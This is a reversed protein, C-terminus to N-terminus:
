ASRLSAPLCSHLKNQSLREIPTFTENMQPTTLETYVEESPVGNHGLRNWLWKSMKPLVPWMILALSKLWWYPAESAPIGSEALWKRIPPAADRLCFSRPDLARDQQDLAEVLARAVGDPVGHASAERSLSALTKTVVSNWREYFENTSAFFDDMRFDSESDEPSTEVLYLRIADSLTPVVAAIVSAWIAHNRSTSFKLGELRYFHNMLLYDPPRYGPYDLAGGVCAM